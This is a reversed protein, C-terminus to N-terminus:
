DKLERIAEKKIWGESKDTLEIRKWNELTEKVFVKTGEHLMFANESSTKPETKVNVVEEFVIAPRVVKDQRHLVYAFLVSCFLFALIFFMGVFFIRKILATASFYYGIFFLLFFISFGVALWAWVTVNFVGITKLFFNSFGVKPSVKIDDIARNQAFSLNTKIAEDTPNLLLAKEFNYISPAVKGLKYYCNGLNFYLESSEQQNQNLISEYKEIAETYKEKRYLDNAVDFLATANNQGFFFPSIFLFLYVIKKMKM